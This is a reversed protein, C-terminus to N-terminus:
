GILPVLTNAQIKADNQFISSITTKEDITFSPPSPHCAPTTRLPHTPPSITPPNKTPLLRPSTITPNITSPLSHLHHIQRQRERSRLGSGNRGKGMEMSGLMQREEGGRIEQRIRRKRRRMLLDEIGGVFSVKQAEAAKALKEERSKETSRRKKLLTEPVAVQEATPTTTSVAM